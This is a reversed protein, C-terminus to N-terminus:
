AHRSLTAILGCLGAIEIWRSAPRRADALWAELQLHGIV